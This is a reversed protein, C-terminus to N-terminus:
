PEISRGRKVHANKVPAKDGIPAVRELGRRRARGTGRGLGRSTAASVEAIANIPTVIHFGKFRTNIM